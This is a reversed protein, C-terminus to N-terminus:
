KGLEVAYEIPNIEIPKLFDDFWFWKNKKLIVKLEALITLEETERPVKLIVNTAYDDNVYDNFEMFYRWTAESNYKGISEIKAKRYKIEGLDFDIGTKLELAPDLKIEIAESVGTPIEFKYNFKADLGIKGSFHAKFLELYKNEPCLEFFSAKRDSEDNGDKLKLDLEIFELYENKGLLSSFTITVSYFDYEMTENMVIIKPDIEKKEAKFVPILDVTIMSDSFELIRRETYKKYTDIIDEKESQIERIKSDDVIMKRVTEINRSNELRDIENNLITEMNTMYDDNLNTNSLTKM